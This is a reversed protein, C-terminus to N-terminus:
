QAATATALLQVNNNAALRSSKLARFRRWTSQLTRAAKEMLHERPIQLELGDITQTVPEFSYSTNSTPSRSTSASKMLNISTSRTVKAHISTTKVDHQTVNFYQKRTDKSSTNSFELTETSSARHYAVYKYVSFVVSHQYLLMLNHQAKPHGRQASHSYWKAAESSEGLLDYCLGLGFEAKLHGQEAALGYWRIAAKLNKSVGDGIAYRKGLNYQAAVHNKEAARFLWRLAGKTDIEQKGEDRELCCAYNFMADADGGRAAKLFYQAAKEQNHNDEMGWGNDYCVGLNFSAEISGVASARKWWDLAETANGAAAAAYALACMAKDHGADAARRLWKKRYLKSGQEIVNHKEEANDINDITRVTEDLDVEPSTSQLIQSKATTKRTGLLYMAEISGNKAARELWTFVDPSECQLTQALSLCAPAYGSKAALKLLYIARKEDQEVNKDGDLLAIALKHQSPAHGQDAAQSYWYFSKSLDKEIGLGQEYYEALRTQSQIQGKKAAKQHYEVAKMLDRPRGRGAEHILGMMHLAEKNGQEAARKWWKSSKVDNVAVESYYKAIFVQSEVSNMKAAQTYWYVARLEDKEVGEGAEYCKALRHAAAAGFKDASSAARKLWSVATKYDKPINKGGEILRLGLHFQAGSHGKRAAHGYLNVAQNLSPPPLAENKDENAAVSASVSLKPFLKGDHYLACTFIAKVHGQSGAQQYLRLAERLSKKVGLGREYCVALNYTARSNGQRSSRLFWKFASDPDKKVGKGDLTACALMFQADSEGQLAARRLWGSAAKLDKGTGVGGGLRCALAYQSRAHGASAASRLAVLSDKLDGLLFHSFMAYAYVRTTGPEQLAKVDNRLAAAAGADKFLASLAGPTPRHGAGPPICSALLGSRLCRAHFSDGLIAMLHATIAQCSPASSNGFSISGFSPNREQEALLWVCLLGLARADMGGDGEGGDYPTSSKEQDKPYWPWCCLRRGFIWQYQIGNSNHSDGLSQQIPKLPSLHTNISHSRLSSHKPRLTHSRATETSINSLSRQSRTSTRRSRTQEIQAPVPVAVKEAIWRGSVAYDTLKALPSSYGGDPGPFLLVNKPQIGLHFIPPDQAHLHALGDCVHRALQLRIIHPVGDKRYPLPPSTLFQILSGANAWPLVLFCMGHQSIVDKVSIINPHPSMTFFGIRERRKAQGSLARRAIFSFPRGAWSRGSADKLCYLADAENKSSAMRSFIRYKRNQIRGALGLKGAKKDMENMRRKEDDGIVTAADLESQREQNEDQNNHTNAGLSERFDRQRLDKHRLDSHEHKKHQVNSREPSEDLQLINKFVLRRTEQTRRSRVNNDSNIGNDITYTSRSYSDRRSTDSSPPSQRIHPLRSSSPTRSSSPSDSSFPSPNLTNIQLFPNWDSLKRTHNSLSPSSTRNSIDHKEISKTVHLSNDVAFPNGSSELVRQKRESTAPEPTKESLSQKPLLFPNWPDVSM